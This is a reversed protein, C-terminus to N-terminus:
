MQMRTVEQFASVLKDRISIATQLSREASMVSDVVQQTTATGQIGNISASEGSRIANMSQSVVQNLVDGFSCAAAASANSNQMPSLNPGLSPALMTLGSIM